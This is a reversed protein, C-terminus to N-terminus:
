LLANIADNLGPVNVPKVPSDVRYVIDLDLYTNGLKSSDERVDSPQVSADPLEYFDDNETLYGVVLKTGGGNQLQQYFDYDSNDAESDYSIFKVTEEWGIVASNKSTIDVTTASGRDKSIKGEPSYWAKSATIKTGWEAADTILTFVTDCTYGILRVGGGKRM